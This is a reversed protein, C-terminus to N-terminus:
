VVKLGSSWQLIPGDQAQSIREKVSKVLDREIWGLSDWMNIWAFAAARTILTRAQDVELAREFIQIITSRIRHQPRSDSAKESSYRAKSSGFSAHAGLAGLTEWVGVRRLIECDASTRLGDFLWNLLWETEKWPTVDSDESPEQLIISDTFYRVLRFQNWSPRLTLFGALKPFIAHTPDSLVPLAHATFTTVIYPVPDNFNESFSHCTEALGGLLLCTMTKDSFNAVLLRSIFHELALLAQVRIGYDNSSLCLILDPLYSSELLTTIDKTKSKSFDPVRQLTLPPISKAAAPVINDELKPLNSIALDASDKFQPQCENGEKLLSNAFIRNLSSQSTLDQLRGCVASLINEDEGCLKLISLFSALWQAIGHAGAGKKLVYPWQEVLTMLLLSIPRSTELNIHSSYILKDLEEEYIIPRRVFRQFCEDIFLLTDETVSAKLLSRILAEIGPVETDFQLMGVDRIVSRLLDDVDKSIRRTSQVHVLLLTLFPSYKLLEPKKWWSIGSSRQAIKVLHGIELLQMPSVSNQDNASNAKQLSSTLTVSIDFQEELSREPIVEFYQAVLRAIAERRIMDTDAVRRFAAIIDKMKPCRRVFSSIIKSRWWSWSHSNTGWKAEDVLSLLKVLKQLARSLIRVGFLNILNSSHNICKTLVKQNLPSPLLNEMAISVPPPQHSYGNKRGFFAPIDLNISSFMLSAYGVWTGTLNPEFSFNVKKIWYDAVLEPAAAFIALILELENKNAHPRLNYALDALSINRIGVRSRREDFTDLSYIDYTSMNSTDNSDIVDQLTDSEPPYWGSSYRVVGGDSSTCLHLMFQHFIDLPSKKEELQNEELLDARYLTCLSLLSREGFVRGKDAPSLRQNRVIHTDLVSLADVIQRTPDYQLGDLLAKVVNNQRMIDLQIGEDQLRLNTLLYRMAHSRVSPKKQSDDDNELTTKVLSLNRAMIKSDFTMDRQAYLQRGVTGGDFSSIEALLRLTPSIIHEKQRPASLGRSLLKAQDEKLISRCIALGHDRWEIKSSLTRVLLALVSTTASFLTDDNKQASFHWSHIINQIHISEENDENQPRQSDLYETLIRINQSVFYEDELQLISELFV